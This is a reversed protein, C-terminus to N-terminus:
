EVGMLEVEFVLTSSPPISGRGGPGYALNSPIVLVAKDGVRMMGIGEDWGPIVQGQGLTFEIPEGRDVSSDFKSGDLFMGTYHVKVKKGPEAKKGKGKKEQIFYMGSATPKADPYKEDLYAQREVSENEAALRKIEEKEAQVQEPTQIKDLKLTFYINEISDVEPPVSPMRFLRLFVSDANCKVIMSDGEKMMSLADYVDGKFTPKIMPLQMPYGLTKSDFLLTDGDTYTMQITVYDGEAPTAEGNGHSLYKYVMGNGNSEYGDPLNNRQNCSVLSFALAVVVMAGTLLTKKM